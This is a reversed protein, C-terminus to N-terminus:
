AHAVEVAPVLAGRAKQPSPPAKRTITARGTIGFLVLLLAAAATARVAPWSDALTESRGPAEKRDILAWAQAATVRLADPLPAAPAPPLSQYPTTVADDEVAQPVSPDPTCVMMLTDTLLRRAPGSCNPAGADPWPASSRGEGSQFDSVLARAQRRQRRAQAAGEQIFARLAAGRRRARGRARLRYAIVTLLPLAVVLVYFARAVMSVTM